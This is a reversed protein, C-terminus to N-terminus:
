GEEAATGATGDVDSSGDMRGLERYLEAHRKGVSEMSEASRYDAMGTRLEDLRDQDELVAQITEATAAPDDPAVLGVNGWREALREFYTLRSALTPCGYAAAWNLIGSQDVTRYPLLLLDAAVFAAHFRDDDLVGTIQANAPCDAKLREAYDDRNRSGGALLFAPSDADDDFEAAVQLFLDSGKEPKLYGPLAVVTRDADFGFAAKAADPSTDITETGVGHPLVEFSSPAVSETFKERVNESLFLVHDATAALLRNNLAVYVRKLPVLPPGITDANWGSHLTVVVRRGRLRALVVLLPFFVWSTLSKPGFVGYEHQVHVVPSAALGARAAGVLYPLPNLSGSPIVIRSVALDDPLEGLLEGTYTGIGCTGDDPTTVLTVDSM